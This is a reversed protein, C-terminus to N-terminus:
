TNEESAWVAEFEESASKKPWYWALHIVSGDPWKWLLWKTIPDYLRECNSRSLRQEVPRLLSEAWHAVQEAEARGRNKTVAWSYRFATPPVNPDLLKQFDGAIGSFMINSQTSKMREAQKQFWVHSFEGLAKIEILGVLEQSVMPHGFGLDIRARRKTKGKRQYAKSATPMEPHLNSSLTGIARGISIPLHAVLACRLIQEQRVVAPHVKAM